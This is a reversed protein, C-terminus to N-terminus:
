ALDAQFIYPSSPYQHFPHSYTQTIKKPLHGNSITSCIARDARTILQLDILLHISPIKNTVHIPSQYGTPGLFRYM